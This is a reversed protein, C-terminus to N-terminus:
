PSPKAIVELPGSLCSPLTSSTVNADEALSFLYCCLIRDEWGCQGNGFLCRSRGVKWFLALGDVISRPRLFNKAFFYILNRFKM